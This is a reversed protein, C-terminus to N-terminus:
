NEIIVAACAYLKTDSISLCIHSTGILDFFLKAKGLLNIKPKGFKDHFIEFQNLSLGDRIGTGLAKVAAEKAVFRKALFSAPRSNIKYELWEQNSLIKEAFNLKLNKIIREFRIVEVFDIGFGIIAM